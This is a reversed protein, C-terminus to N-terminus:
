GARVSKLAQLREIMPPHSDHIFVYLPHPKLLVLNDRTLKKLAQSLPHPDEMARAAYADAEFEHRRSLALSLLSCVRSLPTVLLSFLVLGTDVRTTEFGFAAHLGPSSILWGALFFILGAQFFSVVMRVRIHGCKSHGIEHALIAVIEKDDHQKLLNDFLAIRKNKGFGTFFANSKSSRRSGDMVLIDQCPFELSEALSEIARRLPSDKLPEFKNFLPLLWQPALYTLGLSIVSFSIWGLFWAWDGAYRFFVWILCFLPIGLVLTLLLGKAFDAWFTKRTSRNFGFAQEIRFTDIYDFPLSILQQLVILVAVFCAGTMWEAGGWQVMWGYLHSFGGALWFVLFILFPVWRDWVAFRIQAATYAELRRYQERDIIDAFLEPIGSQLSRQNLQDAWQNLLKNLFLFVLLGWFFANAEVGMVAGNHLLIPM